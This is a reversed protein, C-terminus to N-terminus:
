CHKSFEYSIAGQKVMDRHGFIRRHDLDFRRNLPGKWGLSSPVSRRRRDM